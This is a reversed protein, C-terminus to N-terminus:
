PEIGERRRLADRVDRPVAGHMGDVRHGPVLVPVPNGGLAERVVTEGDDEPTLVATRDVVEGATWATGHPIERVTEFVHRHITPVTLGIEVDELGERSGDDLYALLRDLVPHEDAEGDHATPVAVNIVKGGAVGLQVWRDLYSSRSAFVGATPDVM